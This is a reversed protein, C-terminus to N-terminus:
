GRRPMFALTTILFAAGLSFIIVYTLGPQPEAAVRRLSFAGVAMVLFFALYIAAWRRQM